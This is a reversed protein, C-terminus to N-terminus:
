MTEHILYTDPAAREFVAAHDIKGESILAQAIHRSIDQSHITIAHVITIGGYYILVGFNHTTIRRGHRIRALGCENVLIVCDPVKALDYVNLMDIPFLHPELTTM